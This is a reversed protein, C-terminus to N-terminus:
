IRFTNLISYQSSLILQKYFKIHDFQDWHIFIYTQIRASRFSEKKLHHHLTKELGGTVGSDVAGSLYDIMVQETEPFSGGMNIWTFYTSM